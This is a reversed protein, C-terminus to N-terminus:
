ALIACAPMSVGRCCACSKVPPQWIVDSDVHLLAVRLIKLAGHAEEAGVLAPVRCRLEGQECRRRAHGALAVMPADADPEAVGGCFGNM